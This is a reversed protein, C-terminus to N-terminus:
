SPADSGSEVISLSWHDGDRAIRQVRTNLRSHSVLDFHKAYRDLYEATQAATAFDPTEDPYPFDTYCALRKSLNAVTTKLVTTKEPDESHQWLGSVYSNGEFGVADFGAERLNKLATLGCAGLGVVAVRQKEAM